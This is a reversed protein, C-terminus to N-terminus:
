FSHIRYRYRDLLTYMRRLSPTWVIGRVAAYHAGAASAATGAASLEGLRQQLQQMPGEGERTYLSSMDLQLNPPCVLDIFNGPWRRPSTLLPSDFALM